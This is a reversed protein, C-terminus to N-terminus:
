NLVNELASFCDRQSTAELREHFYKV